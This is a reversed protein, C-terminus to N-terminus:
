GQERDGGMGASSLLSVAFWDNRMREEVMERRSKVGNM